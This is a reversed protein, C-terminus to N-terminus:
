GNCKQVTYSDSPPFLGPTCAGLFILGSPFSGRSSLVVGDAEAAGAIDTRDQILLVARGRLVEKLLLAAEYLEAGGAHSLGPHFIHFGM